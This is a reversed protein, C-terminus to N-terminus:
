QVTFFAHEEARGAGQAVVARIEYQGPPLPSSSAVYPIRGLKDAEPLEPRAQAVPQGDKLFQLTLQPKEALGPQPYVVFYFSVAGSVEGTLSPTVKGGSFHWPDDPDDGEPAQEVRRIVAISSMAIGGSYPPVILVARRTSVKLNERDLVASEVTYREAPVKFYLITNFVGRRTQELKDAPVRFPVDRSLKEVVGGQRNKILALVSVHGHFSNSEKNESFAVNELPVEFAVGYKGPAFHLTASHFDFGHPLPVTSLAKLMPVEFAMLSVGPVYPLAFYGSRSQVRVDPRTIHVAIKRFSGDYEDIKPAYTVAYYSRVDEAVHRLPQRLDNTNAVLFGGTSEALDALANQSNARIADEAKDFIKAQDPTVPAQQNKLIATAQNMSSQAAQGLMETSQTNLRETMLGRADIAYVSVNAHNAAGITQQFYEALSAPVQLGESFYMVTKRGPLRDQERVIGLLAFISARGQQERSAAQSFELMNLQMRAMAAAAASDGM